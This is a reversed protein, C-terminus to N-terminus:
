PDPMATLQPTPQLRPKSGANSHSQHLGTAVAGIRDRAQSSGYAAPAAWSIAFFSWFFFAEIPFHRNLDKAWKEMPVQIPMEGLFICIALLCMFFHEIGRIILSIYILVVMLYWRVGTLIVMMLLDVFFLHQLPHPSFPVRRCQQHSHLSTCSSHLVNHLFRLFRFMSSGHSGAIGSRPKYGSLVKSVFSVYVWMNM